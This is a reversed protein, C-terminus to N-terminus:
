DRRWQCCMSNVNKEAWRSLNFWYSLTQIQGEAWLASFLFSCLRFSRAGLSFRSLCRHQYAPDLTVCLAFDGAVSLESAGRWEDPTDIGAVCLKPAGSSQKRGLRPKNIHGQCTFVKLGSVFVQRSRSVPAKPAFLIAKRRRDLLPSCTWCISSIQVPSSKYNQINCFQKCCDCQQCQHRWLCRLTSVHM